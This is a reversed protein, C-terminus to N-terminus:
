FVYRRVYTSPIGDLATSIVCALSFDDGQHLFFQALQTECLGGISKCEDFLRHTYFDQEHRPSSLCFNPHIGYPSRHLLEKDDVLTLNGKIHQLCHQVLKHNFVDSEFPNSM